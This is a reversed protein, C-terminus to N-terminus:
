FAVVARVCINAVLVPAHLRAQCHHQLSTRRRVDTVFPGGGSDHEHQRAGSATHTTGNLGGHHRQGEAALAPACPSASRVRHACRQTTGM